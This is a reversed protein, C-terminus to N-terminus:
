LSGENRAHKPAPTEGSPDRTRTQSAQLLQRLSSSIEEFRADVKSEVRVQRQELQDFREELKAIRQNDAALTSVPVFPSSLHPGSGSPVSSPLSLICSNSSSPEQPSLLITNIESVIETVETATLSVSPKPLSYTISGRLPFLLVLRKYESGLAPDKLVLEFPGLLKAAIEGFTSKEANPLIVVSPATPAATRVLDAISSKTALVAGAKRASMQLKHTQDLMNGKANLVPHKDPLLLDERKTSFLRKPKKSWPDGAAWPDKAVNAKTAADTSSNAQPTAASDDVGGACDARGLHPM